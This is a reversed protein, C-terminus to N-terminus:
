SISLRLFISKTIGSSKLVWIKSENLPFSLFSNNM